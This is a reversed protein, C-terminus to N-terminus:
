LRAEAAKQEEAWLWGLRAEKGPDEQYDWSFSICQLYLQHEM